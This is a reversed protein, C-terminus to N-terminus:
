GVLLNATVTATGELPPVGPIADVMLPDYGITVTVTVQQGDPAVEMNWDTVGATTLYHRVADAALEPDVTKEGGDIADPLRIAQGGARAAEAAINEARQSTRIYGAGDGALGILAILGPMVIAYFLGIRGSDLAARRSLTPPTM